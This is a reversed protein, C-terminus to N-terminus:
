RKKARAIATLEVYFAPDNLNELENKMQHFDSKNIRGSLSGELSPIHDIWNQIYSKFEKECFGHAHSHVHCQPEIFGCRRLFSYLRLGVSHDQNNEEMLRKWSEIVRNFHPSIPDLWIADHIGEHLLITGGPKLVRFIEKIASLPKSLHMLVFRAHVLDFQADVFPLSMADGHVFKLNHPRPLNKNRKIKEHNNDLGVFESKPFKTAVIRTLDGAGCGVDLIVGKKPICNEFYSVGGYLSKAQRCLRSDEEPSDTLTYKGM